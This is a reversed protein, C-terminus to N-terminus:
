WDENIVELDGAIEWETGQKEWHVHITTPQNRKLKFHFVEDIYLVMGVGYDELLKRPEVKYEKYYQMCYVDTYKVLSGVRM